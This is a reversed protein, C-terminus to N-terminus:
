ETERNSKDEVTQRDRCERDRDRDRERERWRNGQCDSRDSLFILVCLFLQFFASLFHLYLFLSYPPGLSANLSPYFPLFSTLCNDNFPNPFFFTARTHFVLSVFDESMILLKKGRDATFEWCM